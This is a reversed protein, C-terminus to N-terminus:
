EPQAANAARERKWHAEALADFGGTPPLPTASRTARAAGQRDWYGRALATMSHEPLSALVGALDPKERMLQAVVKSDIRLRRREVSVKDALALDRIFRERRAQNLDSRGTAPGPGEARVIRPGIIRIRGKLDTYQYGSAGRRRLGTGVVVDGDLVQDRENAHYM